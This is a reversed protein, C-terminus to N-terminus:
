TATMGPLPTTTEAPRRMRGRVIALVIFAVLGFICLYAFLDGISAYITHVGHTPVYAVLTQQSNDFYDADSLVRGEYDVAMSLGNSAQRVLSFGNEIARFTAAQTHVPDIGLWDNSPAMMLDVGAQGAQRINNPFDLDFCIVGALRGLPTDVVPIKGDGPIVLGTEGGPVLHTKEYTWVIKGTPDLLVAEDKVHPGNGPNTQIVALGLDLYIGQERALTSAQQILAPEDQALVSTGVEPWIIIKAGASAERQTLTLLQDDLKSYSSRVLDLDAKSAKGAMLSMTMNMSIQQNIAAAEAQSGSLGVVRVPNAQPPFYALRVGGGLMVAALIAAYLVVGARIQSWAFQQEWAWNVVAALWTILFTIGWMGTVSLLQLLPLNGYQTNAMSVLGGFPGFSYFYELTSFAVPFVLTALFGQIRPTILRDALYPLTTVLTSILITLFYPVGQYPAFGQLIIAAIAARVLWVLLYGPFPRRIRAFRLLFIPAIWAALPVNWRGGVGLSFVAAIGLWLWAYRDHLPDSFRDMPVAKEQEVM